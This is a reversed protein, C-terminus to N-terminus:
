FLEDGFRGVTEFSGLAEAGGFLHVEGAKAAPYLAHIVQENRREKGLVRAMELAQVDGGTKGALLIQMLGHAMKLAAHFGDHGLLVRALMDHGCHVRSKGLDAALKAGVENSRILAVGGGLARVLDDEAIRGESGDCSVTQGMYQIRFLHGVNGADHGLVGVAEGADINVAVM